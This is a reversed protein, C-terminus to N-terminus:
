SVCPPPHHPDGIREVVWEGVPNCRCVLHHAYNAHLCKVRDSPGGGIGGADDLPYLADRRAVYDTEAAAFAEAFVADEGLRETLGRLAGAAELGGIAKSARTCTLWFLTPFPKGDVIPYTEIVAPLACPCRVVV